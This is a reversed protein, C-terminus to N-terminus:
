DWGNPYMRNLYSKFTDHNIQFKNIILTLNRDRAKANLSVLGQIADGIRYYIDKYQSSTNGLEEKIIKRLLNIKTQETTM